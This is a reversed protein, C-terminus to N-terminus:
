SSRVIVANTPRAFGNEFLVAQLTVTLGPPFGSGLNVSWPATPTAPIFPTPQFSNVVTILLPNAPDLIEPSFAMAGLGAPLVIAEQPAPAGIRAFLFFPASTGSEVPSLMLDISFSSMPAVDVRRLVGGANGSITLVDFPGGAGLGMSGAAGPGLFPSQAPITLVVGRGLLGADGPAGVMVEDFGDGNVDGVGTMAFGFYAQPSEGDAVLLPAGTAGSFVYARGAESITSSHLPGTVGIDGIGDGDVDGADCVDAGLREQPVTGTFVHLLQNTGTSYVYARGVNAIGGHDNQLAGLVVDPRGDQDIDDIGAVSFGLQDGGNEGCFTAIDSGDMGSVVLAQGANPLFDDSWRAGIVVDSLGDDDADGVGDVDSGFLCEVSDGDRTWHITGTMVDFVYVRGSDTGGAGDHFPTGVVLDDRGDGDVDGAGAVAYGFRDGGAEGDFTRIVAAGVGSYVWVRGADVASTSHYQAGVAFDDHGDGDVDGVNAVSSGFFDGPAGDTLDLVLGGTSATFIRVTDEFWSAIAVEIEGDGTIDGLGAVTTGLLYLPDPGEFRVVEGAQAAADPRAAVLLVFSIALIRTM